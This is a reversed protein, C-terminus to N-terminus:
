EALVHVFTRGHKGNKHSWRHRDSSDGSRNSDREDISKSRMENDSLVTGGVLDLEPEGINYRQTRRSEHRWGQLTQGECTRPNEPRLTWCHRCATGKSIFRQAATREFVCVGLASIAQFLEPLLFRCKKTITLERM